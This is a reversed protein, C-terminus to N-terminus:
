RWPSRPPEPCRRLGGRSRRYLQHFPRDTAPQPRCLRAPDAPRGPDGGARRHIGRGAGRGPARSLAGPAAISQFGYLSSSPEDRLPRGGALKLVSPHVRVGSRAISDLNAEFTIRPGGVNLCFMSGVSCETGRESISLVPHGALSRFVQQREREDVVGLYIVNCLTGLDPNDVARREAHVRRAMPRCWAASCATPTSPRDSWASNCSRRSRRGACTASYAWCFRASRMAATARGVDTRRGGM